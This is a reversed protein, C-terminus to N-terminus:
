ERIKFTFEKHHTPCLVNLNSLKNNFRNGDKHHVELVVEINYGCLSCQGGYHKLAKVRYSGKGHIYNPNNTESKYLTNNIITACHKSCFYNASKSRLESPKRWIKKKCNACYLESTKTRFNKLCKKSCFNKYGHKKNYEVDKKNRLFNVDCYDCTVIIKIIDRQM